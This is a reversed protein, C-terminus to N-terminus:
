LSELWSEAPNLVTPPSESKIEVFREIPIMFCPEYDEPDNRDIRGGIRLDCGSFDRCFGLSDTWQIVLYSPLSTAKALQELAQVKQASIMYSPYEARSVTRRKFEVWGAIRSDMGVGAWDVYYSRKLKVLTKWGFARAIKAAAELEAKLDAATEYQKRM